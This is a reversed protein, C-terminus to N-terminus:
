DYNDAASLDFDKADFFVEKPKDKREIIDEPKLPRTKNSYYKWYLYILVILAITLLYKTM